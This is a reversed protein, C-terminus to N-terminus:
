FREEDGVALLQSSGDEGPCGIVESLACITISKHVM